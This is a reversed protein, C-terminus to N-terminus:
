FPPLRRRQADELLARATKYIANGAWQQGSEPLKVMKDWIKQLVPNIAFRM